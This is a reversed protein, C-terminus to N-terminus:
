MALQRPHPKMGHSPVIIGCDHLSAHRIRNGPLTCEGKQAHRNCQTYTKHEEAIGPTRLKRWTVCQAHTDTTLLAHGERISGLWRFRPVPWLKMTEHAVWDIIALSMCQWAAVLMGGEAFKSQAQGQQMM